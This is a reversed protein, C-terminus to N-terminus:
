YYQWEIEPHVIKALRQKLYDFTRPAKHILQSHGQGIKRPAIIARGDKPVAALREEIKDVNSQFFDDHFFKDSQSHCLKFMTCVPFSNAENAMQWAQGLCGKNTYDQGYLFILESHAIVFSRTIHYPIRIIAM